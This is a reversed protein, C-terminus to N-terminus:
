KFFFTNRNKTVSAGGVIVEHRFEVYVKRESFGVQMHLKMQRCFKMRVNDLQCPTDIKLLLSEVWLQIVDLNM